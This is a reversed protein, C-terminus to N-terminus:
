PRTVSVIVGFEKMEPLSVVDITATEATYYENSLAQGSKIDDNVGSAVNYVVSGILMELETASINQIQMAGYRYDPDANKYLKTFDVVYIDNVAPKTLYENEERQQEFLTAGIALALLVLLILGSFSPLMARTTFVSAKIGSTLHSSLEKETIPYACNGCELGLTRSIPFMPIWYLHFHRIVGIPTMNQVGCKPCEVNALRACSSIRRGTGFFIM